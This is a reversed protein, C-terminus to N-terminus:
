PGCGEGAKGEPNNAREMECTRQQTMARLCEAGEIRSITGQGAGYFKCNANRYTIWARQASKLPARQASDSRKTLAQYATNLRADWVKAREAVCEAIGMTTKASCQEYDAGYMQASTSASAVASPGTPAAGSTAAFVTASASILTLTLTSRAIAYRM